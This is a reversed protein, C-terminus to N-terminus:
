RNLSNIISRRDGLWSLRFCLRHRDPRVIAISPECTPVALPMDVYQELALTYGGLKTFRMIPRRRTDKDREPIACIPLGIVDTRHELYTRSHRALQHFEKLIGIVAFIWCESGRHVIRGISPDINRIGASM